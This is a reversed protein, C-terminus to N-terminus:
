RRTGDRPPGFVSVNNDNGNAVYATHNAQNVAVAVPFGGVQITPPTRPCGSNVTANCTAGNIVTVSDDSANVVYVTDSTQDIAVDLPGLGATLAPPIQGCGSTVRSDCTAGNIMSVTTGFGVNGTAANFGFNTVYVTNTRQDVEVGSPGSGVTVTPLSQGCGTTVTANCTAGNIVSVTGDNFNATYVTNTAQDIALDGISSSAKVTPPIQGCGTTVTANCTAGNIVSVTNDGTNPVYITDTAQNVALYAPGRGVTVTAPTQGCGVTVEANCTAGNIVSV